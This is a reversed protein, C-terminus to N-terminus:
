SPRGRSRAGPPPVAAGHCFFDVLRALSQVEPPEESLDRFRARLMGLLLNALAEQPYDTRIEGEQMGKRLIGALGAVMKKRKEKWRQGLNGRYWYMRDEEAQMMRFLQRREEFFSSIALAAHLLQDGFPADGPVQRELLSCLDDFGSTAVQFFLDDKDEFYRYITGKGVHAAAAIDDTTIEHFRRSTFLQEAAQMIQQRKDPRAM